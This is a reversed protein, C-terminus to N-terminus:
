HQLGLAVAIAIVVVGGGVTIIAVATHDRWTRKWWGSTTEGAGQTSSPPPAPAAKIAPSVSAAHGGSNIADLERKMRNHAVHFFGEDPTEVDVFLAGTRPHGSITIPAPGAKGRVYLAVYARTVTLRAKTAMDFAAVLDNEKVEAGQESKLSVYPAVAPVQTLVLETAVENLAVFHQMWDRKPLSYQKSESFSMPVQAIRAPSMSKVNQALFRWRTPRTGPASEALLAGQRAVNHRLQANGVPYLQDIGGALVAVTPTGAAVAVCHAVADIGYAGGSVIRCGADAATSSIEAAAEAGAVTNARSGM